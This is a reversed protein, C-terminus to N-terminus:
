CMYGVYLGGCGAWEVCLCFPLYIFKWFKGSYYVTSLYGVFENWITNELEAGEGLATVDSVFSEWQKESLVQGKQKEM